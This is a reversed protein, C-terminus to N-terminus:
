TFDLDFVSQVQFEPNGGSSQKRAIEIAKESFDIGVVRAGRSALYRSTRGTGCGVDLVNKGTVSPLIKEILAIQERHYYRNLHNNAWMSVADGELESAKKDWYEATSYVAERNSRTKLMERISSPPM